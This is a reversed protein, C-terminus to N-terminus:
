MVGKWGDRRGGFIMIIKRLDLIGSALMWNRM